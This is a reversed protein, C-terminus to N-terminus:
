RSARARRTEWVKAKSAESRRLLHFTAHHSAPVAQLHEPRVCHPTECKHHVHHGAPIEGVWMAYAHRHVREHGGEPALWRGYGKADRGGLWLWCDGSRDVQRLFREDPTETWRCSRCTKANKWKPQGCSPCPVKQSLARNRSRLQCCPRCRRKGDSSVVTNDDTQPHGRKCIRMGTGGM